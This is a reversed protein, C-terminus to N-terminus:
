MGNTERRPLPPVCEMTRIHPVVRGLRTSPCKHDTCVAEPKIEQVALVIKALEWRLRRFELDLFAILAGTEPYREDFSAEAAEEEKVPEASPVEAPAASDPVKGNLSKGKVNLIPM